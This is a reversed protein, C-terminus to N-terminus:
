RGLVRKINGYTGMDLSPVQLDNGPFCNGEILILGRDKSICVDWGVFRVEPVVKGAEQVFALCEDWRPIQFGVLQTGLVPVTEYTERNKDFGPLVVKGTNTDLVAALGGKKAGYGGYNLNDVFNGERGMRVAAMMLYVNEGNRITVMRITNVATTCLKAMREDQVIVEEVLVAQDELLQNYLAKLDTVGKLEVKQIGNGCSGDIPKAILQEKGECLKCFADLNTGDIVLWDRKIFDKFVENFMPKNEFIECKDKDNLEKVLANNRGITNINAREEETMNYMGLTDYDVYGAGHKLTCHIIDTLVAVWNRNLEKGLRQATNVWNKFNTDKMRQLIFRPSVM